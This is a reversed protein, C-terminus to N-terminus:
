LILRKGDPNHYTPMVTYFSVGGAGIFKYGEMVLIAFHTGDALAKKYYKYSEKEVLTMDVSDDLKNAARLVEIRSTTLLDLDELTAVRYEM